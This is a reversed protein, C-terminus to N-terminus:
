QLRKRDLKGNSTKPLEDVAAVVKPIKFMELNKALYSRFGVMDFGDPDELVVNLKPVSGTIRDPVGFCACEVIGPYRMVVNEVEVPAIKLGGVNIVDGKRGLMFIFGDGDIYGIDNTYLVGGRMVEETLEPANYYGSMLTDGSVAILGLKDKSSEIPHGEDDVIFVHSRPNAKGVCNTLGPYASYEYGCSCGAESSGYAFILHTKPFMGILTEKDTEPFAAAGSHIVEIQDAYKGLQAASVTLLVRVASPPLLIATVGYTDLTGYFRRLNLFGDIIVACAGTMLSAYLKRIGSAHNIPVAILYVSKETLRDLAQTNEVAACVARHTLRVGKSKGTTGTTFLVDCLDEPRPMEFVASESFTGESIETVDSLPTFDCAAGVPEDCIVMSASLAAAVEKIGDPGMTKEVPVFTYGALHCALCVIPFTLAPNSKVVIRAGKGYGFSSLYLAFGRVKKWLEGYSLPIDEAIVATKDPVKGAFYEVYSVISDM